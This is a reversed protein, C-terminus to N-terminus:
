KSDHLMQHVKQEFQLEIKTKMREILELDELDKNKEQSLEKIFFQYIEEKSIAVYSFTDYIDCIVPYFRKSLANSDPQLTDKTKANMIKM